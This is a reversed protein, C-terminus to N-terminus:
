AAEKQLTAVEVRTDIGAPCWTICRGCGVCGLTGFQEKWSGFKHSLWQRYRSRINPRTNGGAQYSYSPNFCSDWVRERSTETGGLNTADTADWCFCTPCALTCNGCSLCRKSVEDWHPSDLNALIEEACTAPDIDCRAEASAQQLARDGTGVLFASAPESPIEMMMDRGLASGVNILMHDDLETLCLDFGTEARPGTGMTACFCTGAPHLCNIAVIFVQDRRAHYYPDVFDERLFIKDQSQIAALECSRVGVFALPKEAQQAEVAQWGKGNKRLTFLNLRPPFLFKKWSAAGPIFDFYRGNNDAVLRFKGPSQVTAYGKPLQEMKSLEDYVITTDKVQPGLVVYGEQALRDLLLQFGTTKVVITDGVETRRKDPM